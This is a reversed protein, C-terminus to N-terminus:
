FKIFLEVAAQAIKKVNNLRNPSRKTTTPTLVQCFSLAHPSCLHSKVKASLFATIICVKHLLKLMLVIILTNNFM